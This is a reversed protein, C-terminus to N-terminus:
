LEHWCYLQGQINDNNTIIDAGQEANDIELEDVRIDLNVITSNDSIEEELYSVRDELSLTGIQLAVPLCVTKHSRTVKTDTLVVFHFNNEPFVVVMFQM